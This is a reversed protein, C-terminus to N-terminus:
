AQGDSQYTEYIQEDPPPYGKKRNTEMLHQYGMTANGSQIQIKM